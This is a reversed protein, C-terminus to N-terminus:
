FTKERTAYFIKKKKKKELKRNVLLMVMKALCNRKTSSICIQGDRNLMGFDPGIEPVM